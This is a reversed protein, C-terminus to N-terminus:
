RLTTLLEQTKKTTIFLATEASARIGYIATAAFDYAHDYYRQLTLSFVM